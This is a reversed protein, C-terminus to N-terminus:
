LVKLTKVYVKYTESKSFVGAEFGYDPPAVKAAVWFRYICAVIKQLWLFFLKAETVTSRILKCDGRNM